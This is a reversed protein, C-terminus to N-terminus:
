RYQILLILLCLLLTVRYGFRPVLMDRGMFQLALRTM